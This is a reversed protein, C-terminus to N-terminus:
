FQVEIFIAEIVIALKRLEYVFQNDIMEVNSFLEKYIEIPVKASGDTIEPLLKKKVKYFAKNKISKKDESYLCRSTRIVELYTYIDGETIRERLDKGEYEGDSEKGYAIVLLVALNFLRM